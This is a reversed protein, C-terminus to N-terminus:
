FQNILGNVLTGQKNKVGPHVVLGSPKNIAIIHDDEYIIDIKMEEPLVLEDDQNKKEIFVRVYDGKQLIYCPKVKFNNVQISTSKIFTKIKSRSLPHLKKALYIDLRRGASKSIQFIDKIM